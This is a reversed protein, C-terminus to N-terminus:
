FPRPFATVTCLMSFPLATEWGECRGKSSAPPAPTEWMGWGEVAAPKYPNLSTSNWQEAPEVSGTRQSCHQQRWLDVRKRPSRPGTWRSRVRITRSWYLHRPQVLSRRKRKHVCRTPWVECAGGARISRPGYTPTAATYFISSLQEPRQPDFPYTETFVLMVNFKTGNASFGSTFRATPTFQPTGREFSTKSVQPIRATIAASAQQATM